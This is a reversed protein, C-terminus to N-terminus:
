NLTVNPKGEEAKGIIQYEGGGEEKKFGTKGQKETKEDTQDGRKPGRIDV